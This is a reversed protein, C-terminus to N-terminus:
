FVTSPVIAERFNTDKVIANTIDAGTLDAGTFDAGTLNAGTFDAGTFDAGMLNAGTFDANTLDANRFSTPLFGVFRWVNDDTLGVKAKVNKFNANNLKANSFDAEYISCNGLYCGEMFARRFNAGILSSGEFNTNKLTAGQFRAYRFDTFLFEKNSFDLDSYDGYTYKKALHKDFWRTLSDANKNKRESYVIETKAMYDGVNVKFEEGKEINAFTSKDVCEVIAFRAINALYSFFCPLTQLILIKVERPSILGIYRRKMNTLDDWLKDFYVFLFSLDYEGLFYQNKDFYSTKDYVFVEASYRRNIFNAYLMTYDLYSIASLASELQLKCIRACIDNFHVTFDQLWDNKKTSFLEETKILYENRKNEAYTLFDSKM